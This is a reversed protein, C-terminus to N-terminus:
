LDRAIEEGIRATMELDDRVFPTIVVEDAGYAAIRHVIEDSTGTMISTELADLDLSALYPARARVAEVARLREARAGPLVTIGISRSVDSPDRGARECAEDLDRNLSRFAEVPVDWACNWSDALRAAVDIVSQSVGGVLTTVSSSGLASVNAELSALRSGYSDLSVGFARHEPQYWGAGVGVVVRSPAVLALARAGAVLQESSRMSSALVLSGVTVRSTSSAVYAMLSTAELAGSVSGDPAVVFPHDSVWVSDFGAEEAARAAAVVPEPGLAGAVDIEYQPLNLGVRM